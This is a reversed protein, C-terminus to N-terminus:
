KLEKKWKLYEKETIEKPYVEMLWTRLKEKESESLTQRKKQFSEDRMHLFDRKNINGRRVELNSIRIARRFNREFMDVLKAKKSNQYAVKSVTELKHLYNATSSIVQTPSMNFTEQIIYNVEDPNLIGKGVKEYLNMTKRIKIPVKMTSKLYKRVRPLIINNYQKVSQRMGEAMEQMQKVEYFIKQSNTKALSAKKAYESANNFFEKSKVIVTRIQDENNEFGYLAGKKFFDEIDVGKPISYAEVHKSSTVVQEMEDAFESVVKTDTNYFGKYESYFEHNYTDKVFKHPVEIEKGNKFVAYFTVDNDRGLKKVSSANTIFKKEIRVVNGNKAYRKMHKKLKPNYKLSKIVKDDVKKYISNMKKMVKDQLDELLPDRAVGEVLMTKASKNKYFKAIEDKIKQEDGGKLIKELSRIDKLAEKKSKKFIENSEKWGEELKFKQKNVKIKIDADLNKFIKSSDINLKEVVVKLKKALKKRGISTLIDIKDITVNMAKKVSSNTSLKMLVDPGFTMAYDLLTLKNGALDEGRIIGLVDTATDVGPISSVIDNTLQQNADIIQYSADLSLSNADRYKNLLTLERKLERKVVLTDNTSLAYIWSKKIAKKIKKHWKKIAEKDNVQPKKFGLSTLYSPLDNTPLLTNVKQLINNHISRLKDKQASNFGIFYKEELAGINYVDIIPLIQKKLTYIEDLYNDIRKQADNVSMKGYGMDVLCDGNLLRNIIIISYNNFEKQKNIFDIHQKEKDSLKSYKAMQFTINELEKKCKKQAKSIRKRINAIINKIQIVKLSNQQNTSNINNKKTKNVYIYGVMYLSQNNLMRHTSVIYSDNKTHNYDRYEYEYTIYSIEYTVFNTHKKVKKTSIKNKSYYKGFYKSKDYDERYIERNGNKYVILESFCNNKCKPLIEEIPFPTNWDDDFIKEITKIKIYFYKDKKGYSLIKIDKLFSKLKTYDPYSQMKLLDRKFDNAFLSSGLLFIFIIKNM